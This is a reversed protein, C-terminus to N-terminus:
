TTHVEASEQKPTDSSDTAHSDVMPVEDTHTAQEGVGSEPETNSPLAETQGGPEQQGNVDWGSFSLEPYELSNTNYEVLEQQGTCTLVPGGSFAVLDNRLKRRGNRFKNLLRMRVVNVFHQVDNGEALYPFQFVLSLGM